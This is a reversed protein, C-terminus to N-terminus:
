NVHRNVKLKRDRFSFYVKNIGGRLEALIDNLRTSRMPSNNAVALENLPIIQPALETMKDIYMSPIPMDVVNIPMMRPRKENIFARPENTIPYRVSRM